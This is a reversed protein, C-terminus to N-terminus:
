QVMLFLQIPRMGCTHDHRASATANQLNSVTSEKTATGVLLRWPWSRALNTETRVRVVPPPADARAAEVEVEELAVSVSDVM